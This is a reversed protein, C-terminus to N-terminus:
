HVGESVAQIFLTFQGLFNTLKLQTIQQAVSLPCDRPVNACFSTQLRPSQEESM